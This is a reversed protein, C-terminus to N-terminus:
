PYPLYSALETISICSTNPLVITKESINDAMSKYLSKKAQLDETINEILMDVKSLFSIDDMPKIRSVVEKIDEKPKVNGFMTDMYINKNINEIIIDVPLIDHLYVTYGNLALTQAVGQGMIGAGIVAVIKSEM